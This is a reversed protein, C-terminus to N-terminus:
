YHWCLEGRPWIKISFWWGHWRWFTHHHVQVLTDCMEVLRSSSAYGHCFFLLVRSFCLCGFPPVCVHLFPVFSLWAWLNSMKVWNSNCSAGHQHDHQNRSNCTPAAAASGLQADVAGRNLSSCEHAAAAAFRGISRYLEAPERAPLEVPVRRADIILTRGDCGAEDALCLLAAYM